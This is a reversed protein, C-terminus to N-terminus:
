DIRHQDIILRKFHKSNRFNFKRNFLLYPSKEFGIQLFHAQGGRIRHKCVIKKKPCSQWGVLLSAGACPQCTPLALASQLLIWTQQMVAQAHCRWGSGAPGLHSRVREDRRRPSTPHFTHIGLWLASPYPGGPSM